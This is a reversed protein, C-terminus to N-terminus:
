RLWVWCLLVEKPQQQALILELSFNSDPRGQTGKNQPERQLAPPKRPWGRKMTRERGCFPLGLKLLMNLAETPMVGVEMRNTLCTRHFPWPRSIPLSKKKRSHFSVAFNCLIGPLSSAPCYDFDGWPCVENGGQNYKIVSNLSRWISILLGDPDVERGVYYNNGCCDQYICKWQSSSKKQYNELSKALYGAKNHSYECLAFFVNNKILIQGGGYMRGAGWFNITLTCPTHVGKKMFYNEKIAALM